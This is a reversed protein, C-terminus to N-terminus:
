KQGGKEALKAQQARERSARSLEAFFRAEEPRKAARESCSLDHERDAQERWWEASAAVCLTVGAVHPATM